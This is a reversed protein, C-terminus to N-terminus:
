IECWVTKGQIHRDVGWRAALEAVIHLGRGGDINPPGMLPVLRSGDSVEIRAHGGLHRVTLGVEGCGHRVANTVLESVLLVISELDVDFASVRRAFRRAEGPADPSCVLIVSEALARKLSRLAHGYNQYRGM